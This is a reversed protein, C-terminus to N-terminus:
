AGYANVLSTALSEWQAYANPCCSIQVKQAAATKSMSKYDFDLLGRNTTYTSRGLFGYTAHTANSCGYQDNCWGQSPRQQFLGISDRDGGAINCLKTEQMATMLSIIKADRDSTKAKVAALILKANAVQKTNLTSYTTGPAWYCAVQDGSQSYGVLWQWTVPGVYGDVTLGRASQFGRVANVTRTDYKGTVPLQYSYKNLQTQVAKIANTNTSGSQVGIVLAGWTQPGVVGDVTLGRSSQFSRVNTQTVSGFDGDPTTSIGRATLLYQITMANASRAGKSVSPYAPTAANAPAAGFTVLATALVATLALLIRTLRM